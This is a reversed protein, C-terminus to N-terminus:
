SRDESRRLVRRGPGTRGLTQRMAAALYRNPAAQQRTFAHMDSGNSKLAEAQAKHNELESM